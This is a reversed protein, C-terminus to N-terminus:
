ISPPTRQVTRIAIQPAKAALCGVAHGRRHVRAEFDCRRPQSHRRLLGDVANAPDLWIPDATRHINLEM